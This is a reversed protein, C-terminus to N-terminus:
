ACAPRDLHLCRTRAGRVKVSNIHRAVQEQAERQQRLTARWAATQEEGAEAVGKGAEMDAALGADLRGAQDAVRQARQVADIGNAAEPAARGLAAEDVGELANAERRAAASRLVADRVAPVRRREQLSCPPAGFQRICLQQYEHVPRDNPWAGHLQLPLPFLARQAGITPDNGAAHQSADAPASWVLYRAVDDFACARASWRDLYADLAPALHAGCRQLAEDSHARRMCADLLHVAALAPARCSPRHVAVARAFELAADVGLPSSLSPLPANEGEEGGGECEHAAAAAAGAAAPCDGAAETAAVACRALGEWYAWNDVNHRRVADAWLSVAEAVDGAGEHAAARWETVEYDMLAGGASDGRAAASDGDRKMAVADVMPSSLAALLKRPDGRTRVAELYARVAEGQVCRADTFAKQFTMDALDLLRPPAGHQVQLAAAMAAHILFTNDGALRALKLAHAQMARYDGAHLHCSLLRKAVDLDSPAKAHARAVVRAADAYRGTSKYFLHMPALVAEDVPSM